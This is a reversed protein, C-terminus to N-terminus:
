EATITPDPAGDDAGGVREELSADVHGQRQHLEATAEDNISTDAGTHAGIWSRFCEDMKAQQELTTELGRGLLWGLDYGAQFPASRASHAVGELKLKGQRRHKVAAYFGTSFKVRTASPAGADFNGNFEELIRPPAAIAQFLHEGGPGGSLTTQGPHPPHLDIM